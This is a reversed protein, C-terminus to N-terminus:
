VHKNASAQMKRIAEKHLDLMDGRRMAQDFVSDRYNVAMAQQQQNLGSQYKEMMLDQRRADVSSNPQQNLALDQRVSHRWSALM